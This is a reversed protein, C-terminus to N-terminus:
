RDSTEVTRLAAQSRALFHETVGRMECRRREVDRLVRDMDGIPALLVSLEAYEEDLRCQWTDIDFAALDTGHLECV